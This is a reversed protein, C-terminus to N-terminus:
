KVSTILTGQHLSILPSGCTMSKHLFSSSKNIQFPILQVETSSYQLRVLGCHDIFHVIYPELHDYKQVFIKMLLITFIKKGMIKLM